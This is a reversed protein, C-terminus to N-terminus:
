ESKEKRLGNLLSIGRVVMTAPILFFPIHLLLLSVIQTSSPSIPTPLLLHSGLEWLIAWVTTAAHAGYAISVPRFRADDRWLARLGWVFFPLQLVLEAAVFSAMWPRVPPTMSPDRFTRLYFALIDRAFQPFVWAPLIAQCDVLIVPPIHFLIFAAHLTDWPRQSLPRPQTM